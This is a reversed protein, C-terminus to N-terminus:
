QTEEEYRAIERLFAEGYREMKGEGVGAVRLMAARTRPKKDAMDRLTANTFIIFPPVRQQQALTKRLNSLRALLAKDPGAGRRFRRSVAPTADKPLLSMRVPEDGRLIERAREGAQLLPYDGRTVSLVDCAVLEDIMARVNEESEGSLCGFGSLRHLGKERIRESKKGCLLQAVMSKGYRGNLAIVMSVIQASERTVDREQERALCSSCNGCYPEKVEEGFYRLIRARLCGSGTAYFTMQKLRERAREAVVLQTQADMQSTDQSHDILFTNLRVDSPHYLLCCAADEGDRGARGAEQYYSELDKPMNYHVVFSVNSKDIGMGFANTAVIVPVRDSVFDEQACGRQEDPMGAHYGVAEIGNECLMDAVEEVAKRTGCYVIGSQGRHEGLFHLLEADRDGTKRVEFYLNPRDFGTLVPYPERLRLLRVIDQRVAQTATATFASVRPRVALSAIFPEIQLYGPRFDQGWQSVCHAEDVVVQAINAGQAFRLFADTMLREPAVYIIKYLGHRANDLARAYQRSTLTSNLYAAHVGNQLLAFVQDRMLSILPSVVLTIGPLVLAPIQYCLSKGAGTPMVALVDRGELIAAVASEQGPRFADYGFVDRLVKKAADMATM